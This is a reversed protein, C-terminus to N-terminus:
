RGDYPFMLGMWGSGARVALCRMPRVAKGGIRLGAVHQSLLPRGPLRSLDADRFFLPRAAAKKM